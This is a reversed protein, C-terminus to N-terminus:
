KRARWDVGLDRNGPAADFHPRHTLARNTATYQNASRAYRNERKRTRQGADGWGLRPNSPPPRRHEVTWLETSVPKYGDHVIKRDEPQAVKLPVGKRDQVVYIHGQVQCHEFDQGMYITLHPDAPM